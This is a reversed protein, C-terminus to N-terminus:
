STEDYLFNLVNMNYTREVTITLMGYPEEVAEIKDGFRNQLSDIIQQNTLTGM